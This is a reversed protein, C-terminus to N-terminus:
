VAVDPVCASRIGLRILDVMVSGPDDRLERTTCRIMLRRPDALRRQRVIDDEWHEVEMHFGGDVELVIVRGDPLHWECDTFRPRGAADRRVTQRTPTPLGRERCLRGVDLEGLSQAGGAIEALVERFLPARHLPTMRRLWSLLLDATTLRQQVVAALLGQGARRSLEYGATLLVAPELRAVPVGPRAVRWTHLPRRTRVFRIGPVPDLVRQDGVLITVEERDWRQLGYMAAATLGGVLSGPGAHLTGLWCRQSWTLSGTVTSIVTSSRPAWRGAAVQNRVDNAGIGLATLQRRALLDQQKRALARWTSEM